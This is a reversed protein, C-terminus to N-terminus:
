LYSYIVESPLAVFALTYFNAYPKESSLEFGSPLPACNTSHVEARNGYDVYLVSVKGGGAM